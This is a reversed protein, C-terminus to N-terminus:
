LLYGRHLAGQWGQRSPPSRLSTPGRVAFAQDDVQQQFILVADITSTSRTSHIVRSWSHDARILGTPHRAVGLLDPRGGRRDDRAKPTRQCATCM